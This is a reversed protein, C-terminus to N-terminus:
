IINSVRPLSIILRIKSLFQPTFHNFVHKFDCLGQQPKLQILILLGLHLCLVSSYCFHGNFGRGCKPRQSILLFIYSYDIPIKGGESINELIITQLYHLKIM